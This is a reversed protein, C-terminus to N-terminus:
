VFRIRIFIDFTIFTCHENQLLINFFFRSHIFPRYIFCSDFSATLNHCRISLPFRHFPRFSPCMWFYPQMLSDSNDIEGTIHLKDPHRSCIPFVVDTCFFRLLPKLRSCPCSAYAPRKTPNELTTKNNQVNPNQITYGQRNSISFFAIIGRSTLRGARRAWVLWGAGRVPWGRKLRRLGNSM